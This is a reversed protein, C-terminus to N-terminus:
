LRYLFYNTGSLSICFTENEHNIKDLTIFRLTVHFICFSHRLYCLIRANKPAKDKESRM